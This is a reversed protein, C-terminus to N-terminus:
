FLHILGLRQEARLATAGHPDDGENVLVCDDLLDEGMELLPRCMCMARGCGDCSIRVAHGGRVVDDMGVRGADGQHLQSAM